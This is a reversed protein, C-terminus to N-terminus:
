WHVAVVAKNGNLRNTKVKEAGLHGITRDLMWFKGRKGVNGGMEGLDGWKLSCHVTVNRFRTNRLVPKPPAHARFAGQM